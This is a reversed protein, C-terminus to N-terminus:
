HETVGTFGFSGIRLAPVLSSGMFGRLLRRERGVAEVGALAELYSQTFRLNRVPGVVRGDEVLFLGDRTMGTIMALKPHVVNTYHFRTVLLGRELGGILEERTASGAEMVM